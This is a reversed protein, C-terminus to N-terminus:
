AIGTEDQVLLRQDAISAKKELTDPSVSRTMGRWAERVGAPDDRVGWAATCCPTGRGIEGAIIASRM